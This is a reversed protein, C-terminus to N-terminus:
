VFIHPMVFIIHAPGQTAVEGWIQLICVRTRPETLIKKPGCIKLTNKPSSLVKHSRHLAQEQEWMLNLVQWVRCCLLFTSDKGLHEPMLHISSTLSNVM